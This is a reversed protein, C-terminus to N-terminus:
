SGLYCWRELGMLAAAAAGTTGFFIAPKSNCYDTMTANVVTSGTAVIIDCWDLVEATKEAGEVMVGSKRQGINDPDLDVVRVQFAQNLKELMAPQLGILAIQPKGFKNQIHKVLEQSCLEPDENHCHITKDVYELYRLVANMTSVLVARDFNSQPKKNLVKKLTGKFDGSMDTFAQGKEGKFDAEMLSEKGKVIPYDKREPNGIAEEVSLTRGTILIEEELLGNKEVIQQFKKFLDDYFMNVV